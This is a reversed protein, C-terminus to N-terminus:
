LFLFIMGIDNDINYRHVNQIYHKTVAYAINSSIHISLGFLILLKTRLGARM